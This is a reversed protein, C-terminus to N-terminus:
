VELLWIFNKSNIKKVLDFPTGRYSSDAGKLVGSDIYCSIFHFGSTDGKMKLQYGKKENLRKGPNVVDEYDEFYVLKFQFGFIEDCIIEKSHEPDKGVKIFGEKNCFNNELMNEFFDAYGMDTKGQAYNLAWFSLMNCHTSAFAEAQSQTCKLVLKIDDFLASHQGPHQKQFQFYNAVITNLFIFEGNNM